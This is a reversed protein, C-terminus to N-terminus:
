AAQEEDVLEDLLDFIVQFHRFDEATGNECLWECLNKKEDNHIVWNEPITNPKGRDTTPHAPTFDVFACKHNRAKDLTVQSFLNEIGKEIPHDDQKPITRRLRNGKNVSEGKYDCDRLIMVRQPVLSGPLNNIAKWTKELEDGNGDQIDVAELVSEYALLKAATQLYKIDTSGEMYLIPREANKVAQRVDDSFASSAKFAEYASGFESFEEPSIQQGDPLRYLAFGDEGFANNMGLVFLPSHTTVIFQVMPFKQILSPLIEYQHGAHLHLDIEDILVIGRVEDVTSFSTGSLNYDRLISLFLNLLSTEGSSLQFVNPVLVDTGSQLSLTRSLRGGITFRADSIGMINQVIELMIGHVDTSSGSYGKWESVDRSTNTSADYYQHTEVQMEFTAMDFIVGFVWNQNDKLSSYNILKRSTHGLLRKIDMFEAQAKLNEENLWAPEEYRNHPFYLVCNRDYLNKIFTDPKQFISSIFGSSDHEKIENWIERARTSTFSPPSNAYKEKSLSLILEALFVDEEFDVSAYCWESGARIYSSSRLKLAKGAEVEPTDPYVLGKVATLCNAIHSLFISKGSGNEGVLVIPKPRDGEFPLDIDLQSIPGYNVIEIKQAYM